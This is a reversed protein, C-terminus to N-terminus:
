WLHVQSQPSAGKLVWASLLWLVYRSPTLNKLNNHAKLWNGIKRSLILRKLGMSYPSLLELLIIIIVAIAVGAVGPVLFTLIVSLCILSYYMIKASVNKHRFNRLKTLRALDAKNFEEESKWEPDPCGSESWFPFLLSILPFYPVSM